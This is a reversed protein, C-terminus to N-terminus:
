SVPTQSVRLQQSTGVARNTRQLHVGGERWSRRTITRRQGSQGEGRQLLCNLAAGFGALRGHDHQSRQTLQLLTLAQTQDLSGYHCCDHQLGARAALCQLRVMHARGRMCVLLPAHRCVDQQELTEIHSTHSLLHPTCVNISRELILQM